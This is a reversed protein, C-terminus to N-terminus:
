RMYIFRLIRYLKLFVIYAKVKTKLKRSRKAYSVARKVTDNSAYSSIYELAECRDLRSIASLIYDVFKDVLNEGLSRIALSINSNLDLIFQVIFFSFNM